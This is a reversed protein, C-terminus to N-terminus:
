DGQYRQEQWPDGRDHYGNREWFGPEDHDLLRLGPWGSPARGSTCTPCSCGPPAATSPRSRRATPTGRSGRRATPSTPWRCTPPTAPTRTRSSTRRRRCRAPPPSCPTSRSARRLDHRAEVLDHRLPHRRLVTSGPLAHMEGVDVDHAGRRAGRRHLDLARAIRPTAEAHLVPWPTVPTTSAPRCACTAPRGTADSSERTTGPM